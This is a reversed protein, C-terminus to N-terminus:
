NNKREIRILKNLSCNLATLLATYHRIDKILSEIQSINRHSAYMEIQEYCKNRENTILNIQEELYERM